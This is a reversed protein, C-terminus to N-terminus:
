VAAIALREGYAVKSKSSPLPLLEVNLRLQCILLIQGPCYRPNALMQITTAVISALNLMERAFSLSPFSIKGTVSNVVPMVLNSM